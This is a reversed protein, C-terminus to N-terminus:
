IINKFWFLWGIRGDLVKNPKSKKNCSVQYYDGSGKEQLLDGHLWYCGFTDDEQCAIEWYRKAGEYNDFHTLELVGLNYCSHALRMDCAIKYHERAADYKKQGVELQGLNNCGQPYHHDCLAEYLYSATDYDGNFYAENARLIHKNPPHTIIDLKVLSYVIFGLVGVFSM